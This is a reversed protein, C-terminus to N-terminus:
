THSSRKIMKFLRVFVIYIIGGVIGILLSFVGVAIIWFGYLLVYYQLSGISMINEPPYNIAQVIAMGIASIIGAVGGAIASFFLSYFLNRKERVIYAGIAGTLIFILLVIIPNFDKIYNPPMRGLAFYSSFVIGGVIGVIMVMIGHNYIQKLEM